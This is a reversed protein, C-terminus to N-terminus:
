SIIINYAHRPNEGESSYYPHDTLERLKTQLGKLILIETLDHLEKSISRKDNELTGSPDVSTAADGVNWLLGPDLIGSNLYSKITIIRTMSLFYRKGNSVCEM